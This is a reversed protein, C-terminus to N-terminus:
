NRGEGGGIGEMAAAIAAGRDVLAKALRVMESYDPPLEVEEGACAITGTCLAVRVFPPLEALLLAASVMPDRTEAPESMLQEAIKNTSRM